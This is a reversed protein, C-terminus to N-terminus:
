SKLFLPPFEFLLLTSMSEQFFLSPPALLEIWESTCETPPRQAFLNLLHHTERRTEQTGRIENVCQIESLSHAELEYTVSLM